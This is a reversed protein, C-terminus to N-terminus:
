RRSRASTPNRRARACPSGWARNRSISAAAPCSGAPRSSSKMLEEISPGAMIILDYTEGAAIRKMVDLTGTFTTTVKHGSAREFQPVLERYAEETAQTSLVKIEAANGMGSLLLTSAAAIMSATKM